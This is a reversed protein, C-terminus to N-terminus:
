TRAYLHTFRNLFTSSTGQVVTYMTLQVPERADLYTDTGLLLRTHYRRLKPSGSIKSEMWSPPNSKRRVESLHGGNTNPAERLM